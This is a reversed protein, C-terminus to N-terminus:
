QINIYKNMDSESSVFCFLIRQLCRHMTLDTGQQIIVHVNGGNARPQHSPRSDHDQTHPPQM